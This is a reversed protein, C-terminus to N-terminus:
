ADLLNETYRVSIMVVALVIAVGDPRPGIARTLYSIKKLRRGMTEGDRFMEKKIDKIALHAADNPNDAQCPMYAHFAYEQELVVDEQRSDENREDGEIITVCPADEDEIKKRGRFVRLGIDTNYGNAVTIRQLRETLLEAIESGKNLTPM